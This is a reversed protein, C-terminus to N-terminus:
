RTRKERGRTQRGRGGRGGYNHEVKKILVLERSTETCKKKKEVM